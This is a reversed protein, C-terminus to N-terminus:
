NNLRTIKMPLEVEHTYFFASIFGYAGLLEFTGPFAGASFKDLITKKDCYDWMPSHPYASFVDLFMKQLVESQNLKLQWSGFKPLNNPTSQFETALSTENSYKNLAESWKDDAFKQAALWPSIRNIIEFHIREIRRQDAGLHYALKVLKETNLPNIQRTSYSDNRRLSAVWNPVREMAYVLDPVDELKGGNDLYFEVRDLMKREYHDRAADNLLGARDFLNISHFMKSAAEINSLDIKNNKNYNSRYVEGVHGTLGMGGGAQTYGKADWAGLMGDSQFAHGMMKDFVWQDDVEAPAKPIARSLNLKYHESIQKAIIVDPHEDFGNTFMNLDKREGFYNALALVARSDKGGSLPIRTLPVYDLCTKINVACEEIAGNIVSDVSQKSKGILPLLFSFPKPKKVLENNFKSDNMFVHNEHINMKGGKVTLFAAQPLRSVSKESTGEGIIIGVAVIWNLTEMDPDSRQLVERILRIRNSIIIQSKDCHYYIAEVALRDNFVLLSDKNEDYHIVSYEGNCKDRVSESNTSKLIGSLHEANILANDQQKKWLYGEM